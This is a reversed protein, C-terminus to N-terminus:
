FVAKEIKNRRSWAGQAHLTAAISLPPPCRSCSVQAHDALPLSNPPSSHSPSFSSAPLPQHCHQVFPDSPPHLNTILGPTKSEFTPLLRFFLGVARLRM